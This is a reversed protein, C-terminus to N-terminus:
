RFMLFVRQFAIEFLIELMKCHVELYTEKIMKFNKKAVMSYGKKTLVKNVEGTSSKSSITSVPKSLPPFASLSDNNIYEFPNPSYKNRTPSM